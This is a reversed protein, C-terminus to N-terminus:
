GEKAWHKQETGMKLYAQWVQLEYNNRVWEDYVPASALVYAQNGRSSSANTSSKQLYSMIRNHELYLRQKKKKNKNQSPKMKTQVNNPELDGQEELDSQGAEESFANFRNTTDVTERYQRQRRRQQRRRFSSSSTTARNNPQEPAEAPQENVEFPQTENTTTATTVFIRRQPLADVPTSSRTNPATTITSRPNVDASDDRLASPMFDNLRLIRPGRQNQQQQPRPQNQQRPRPQRGFSYGARTRSRSNQNNGRTNRNYPSNRRNRNRFIRYDQNMGDNRQFNNNRQYNNNNNRYNNARFNRNVPYDMNNMPYNMRNMNNVPYYNMENVNNMPYNGNQNMYQNTPYRYNSYHYNPNQYNTNNAGVVGGGDRRFDNMPPPPPQQPMANANMNMM